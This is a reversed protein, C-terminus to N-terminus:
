EEEKEEEEDDEKLLNQVAYLHKKAEAAAEEFTWGHEKMVIRMVEGILMLMTLNQEKDNQTKISHMLTMSTYAAAVAPRDICGSDILQEICQGVSVHYYTATHRIFDATRKPIYCRLLEMDTNM